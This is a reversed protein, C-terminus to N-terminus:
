DNKFFPINEQPNLGRNITKNMPIIEMITKYASSHNKYRGSKIENIYNNYNFLKTLDLINELTNIGAAPSNLLKTGESLMLHSPTLAGIETYLRRTQYEIMAKIWPKDKDDDWDILALVAALAIVHSVEIITRKINAKETNSLNDWQSAIDFQGERIDNYLQKIFNFSTRYYGETYSDLDYNYTGRQFRRIYSARMWKRFLLAMRGAGVRQIASMDASNYIGHMRQNIAASKRSFKFIDEETFKSGDLKTYGEKIKLSAGQNKDENNKYVVEFADWLSVEKGDPSKMKYRNALALSTRTQMWHEGSNNIFFLTNISSLRSLRSKQNFRTDKIDKDYDQLVDFLEMWLSLKSTKVRKGIEGLVQSLQSSYIKDAKFVDKTTFFEGALSEIRMMVKGTTINSIGSLLNLALSSLATLSNISNFAKAQDIKTNGITGEDKLYQNYIQSDYFDNLRAIFNSGSTKKLLTNEVKRGSNNFKEKLTKGGSTENIKRDNLLTRGIELIDIVKSMERHELAMAAYATLTSAVDTSLNQVDEGKFSTYYIPLTNVKNGEFDLITSKSGFEIDDARRIVNDKISEWLHKTGEKIDKTDKLREILDKRIRVAKITKINDIPLFRDLEEKTKIIFNYYEKQAENLSEFTISKYKEFIPIRRGEIQSYITNNKYWSAREKKYKELDEKKPHEGYKEKLQKLFKDREDQYLAYDIESIYNGTLSGDKRREFMWDTNRIGSRELKITAAEIDKKIKITDLRAKNKSKKVAQDLVKLMYDTSNAASDLWRDFFSIDSEAYEILQEVTYTKGKDKGFAVTLSNGIFPKLFEVFLPMANNNYEINLDKILSDLSELAVRVRQGYRNDEYREEEVLTKRIDETIKGYSFIYNRIDRLVKAKSQINTEGQLSHLRNLIKNLEKFGNDLFSYIGEIEQNDFLRSELEELLLLQEEKFKNKNNNIRKSYIELRKVENNIIERLLKKDREIRESLKFYTDSNKINSIKIDKNLSGKLIDTALNSFNKDLQYIAIQLDSLNINKFLNKIQEIVRQLLNKYPKPTILENQLLHKALLKGAAEKVLKLRDDNYLEKYSNFEEGLIDLLIDDNNISNLLRSVLPNGDLSEIAFHAFEEPLAKEGRIGNALRILEIIGESNEKAKSFDTIGDIGQKEELATLAGISIGKSVLIERLKDNLTKNYEMQSAKLALLNDKRKIKIGLFVRHSEGDMIKVIDAMYLHRLPHNKNFDLAKNFLKESNSNNPVWLAPRDMGKKYYGIKRNLKELVENNDFYKHLFSLQLLSELIPENNEDYKISSKFRNDFEPNKTILYVEKTTDRNSTYLLLDKFLRSEVLENNKNKVKPIISCKM